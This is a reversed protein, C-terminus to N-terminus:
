VTVTREDLVTVFDDSMVTYNWVNDDEQNWFYVSKTDPDYKVYCEQLNGGNLNLVNEGEPNFTYGENILQQSKTM